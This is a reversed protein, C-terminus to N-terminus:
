FSNQIEFLNIVLIKNLYKLFIMQGTPRVPKHNILNLQNLNTGTFVPRFLSDSSLRKNKNKLQYFYHVSINIHQLAYKRKTWNIFLITNKATILFYLSINKNREKDEPPILLKVM